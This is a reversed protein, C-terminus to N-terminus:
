HSGPLEIRHLVDGVADVLLVGDCPYALAYEIIQRRTARNSLKAAERGGKFEAVYRRGDREVLADARVTFTQARGDVILTSEGTCQTEVVRYGAGKVLALARAEGKKGLKRSRAVRRRGRRRALRLGLWVGLLLLLLALAWPAWDLGEPFFTSM